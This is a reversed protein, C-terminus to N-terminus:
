RGIGYKEAFTAFTHMEYKGQYDVLIYDVSFDAMRITAGDQHLKAMGKIVRGPRSCRLAINAAFSLARDNATYHTYAIAQKKNM